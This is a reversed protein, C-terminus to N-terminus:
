AKEHHNTSIGVWNLLMRDPNDEWNEQKLKRNHIKEVEKKEWAKQRIQIDRIETTACGWM